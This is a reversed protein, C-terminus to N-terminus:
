RGVHGGKGKEREREREREEINKKIM